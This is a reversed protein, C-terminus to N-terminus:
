KSQPFALSADELAKRAKKLRSRRMREAATLPEKGVRPRGSARKTVHLENSKAVHAETVAKTVTAGHEAPEPRGTSPRSSTEPTNVGAPAAYPQRPLTATPAPGFLSRKPLSLQQALKSGPKPAEAM